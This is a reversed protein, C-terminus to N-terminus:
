NVTEQVLENPKKRYNLINKKRVNEITLFM